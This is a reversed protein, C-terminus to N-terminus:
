DYEITGNWNKITIKFKSMDKTEILAYPLVKKRNVYAAKSGPNVVVTKKIFGIGSAEHIHGCIVLRPKYKKIIKRLYRNGTNKQKANRKSKAPRIYRTNGKKIVRYLALDPPMGVHRSRFLEKTLPPTHSLIITPNNLNVTKFDQIYTMGIPADAPRLNSGNIIGIDKYMGYDKEITIISKLRSRRKDLKFIVSRVDKNGQILFIRYKRHLERFYRKEPFLIRKSYMRYEEWPSEYYDGTFIIWDGKSLYKNSLAKVERYKVLGEPDGIVLMKM